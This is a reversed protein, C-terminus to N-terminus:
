LKVHVNKMFRMKIEEPSLPLNKADSNGPKIIVHLFLPRNDASMIERLEEESQAIATDRIGAAVAMLELSCGKWAHTIQM